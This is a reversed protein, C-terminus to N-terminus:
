CHGSGPSRGADTMWCLYQQYWYVRQRPPPPLRPVLSRYTQPVSRFAGIRNSISCYIMKWPGFDSIWSLWEQQCFTFSGFDRTIQHCQFPMHSNGMRFHPEVAHWDLDHLLSCIHWPHLPLLVPIFCICKSSIRIQIVLLIMVIHKINNNLNGNFCRTNLFFFTHEPALKWFSPRSIPMTNTEHCIWPYWPRTEM